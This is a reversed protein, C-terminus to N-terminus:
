RVPFASLNMFHKVLLAKDLKTKKLVRVINRSIQGDAPGYPNATNKLTKIFAPSLAREVAASIKKEQVEHIDIVNKARVRGEQRLGINIVPLNFSPAEIIGSSSNGVMVSAYKLLSLYKKQGLSIFAKAHNAHQRCFEEIIKIFMRGGMDANPYTIIWFLEPFRGLASLLEKLHERSQGKEHTAPHYTVIGVKKQEVIGIDKFLEAKGM